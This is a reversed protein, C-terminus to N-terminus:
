IRNMFYPSVVDVVEQHVGRATAVVGRNNKLTRGKSFDLNNGLVDSVRGGAQELIFAGAAHDWIKERYDPRTPLRLYADAMGSAVAAYKAQSDMRLPELHVGLEEAVKSSTGHSSHGSEFSECLRVHPTEVVRSAKIPQVAGDRISKAFPEGNEAAFIWGRRM